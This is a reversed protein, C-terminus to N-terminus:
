SKGGHIARALKSGLQPFSNLLLILIGCLWPVRLVLTIFRCMRRRPGLVKRSRIEWLLALSSNWELNHQELLSILENAQLLAWYMGEGTFPEVFGAADGLVFFREGALVPRQRLLSPAGFWKGQSLGPPVQSGAERLIKEVLSASSGASKLSSPKVAAAVEVKHDERLAIGVYGDPSCAMTITDPIATSTRECATSIGVLSDEAITASLDAFQNLSTGSLGDCILATKARIQFEQQGQTLTVRATDNKVTNLVGKTSPLFVAGRQKAADIMAADFKKRSLSLAQPIAIKASRGGSAISLFQLPTGNLSAVMSRLGARELERLAPRSLCGGCSKERPFAAQDILLVRKKFALLYAALAGAPGAGIIVFDWLENKVDVPAPAQAQSEPFLDFLPKM